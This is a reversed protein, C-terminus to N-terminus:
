KCSSDVPISVGTRIHTDAKSTCSQKGYIILVMDMAPELSHRGRVYDVENAQGGVSSGPKLGNVSEAENKGGRVTDRRRMSKKNKTHLM